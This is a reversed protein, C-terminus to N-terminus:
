KLNAPLAPADPIPNSVAAIPTASAVRGTDAKDGLFASALHRSDSGAARPFVFIPVKFDHRRCFRPGQSRPQTAKARGWRYELLDAPGGRGAVDFWGRPVGEQSSTMFADAASAAASASPKVADADASMPHPQPSFHPRLSVFVSRRSARSRADWRNPRSPIPCRAPVRKRRIWRRRGRRARSGHSAGRAPRRASALM